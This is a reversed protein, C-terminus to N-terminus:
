SAVGVRATGRCSARGIEEAIAHQALKGFRYADVEPGAHEQLFVRTINAVSAALNSEDVDMQDVFFEVDRDFQVTYSEHTVTVNSRFLVRRFELCTFIEYA